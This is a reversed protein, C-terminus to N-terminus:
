FTCDIASNVGTTFVLTATQMCGPWTCSMGLRWGPLLSESGEDYCKDRRPSHLAASFHSHPFDHGYVTYKFSSELSM